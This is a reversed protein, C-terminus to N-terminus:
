TSSTSSRPRAATRSSSASDHRRLGVLSTRTLGPWLCVRAPLFLALSVIRDAPIDVKEPNVTLKYM